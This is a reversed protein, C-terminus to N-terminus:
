EIDYPGHFFCRIKSFYVDSIIAICEEDVGGRVNVNPAHALPHIESVDGARPSDISEVTCITGL